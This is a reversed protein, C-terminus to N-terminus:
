ENIIKIDIDNKNYINVTEVVSLVVYYFGMIPALVLMIDIIKNFSISGNNCLLTLVGVFVGLISYMIRWWTKKLKIFFHILSSIIQYAAFLLIYTIWDENADNAFHKFVAILLIFIQIAVDITKFIKM